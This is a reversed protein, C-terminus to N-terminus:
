ADEEIEGLFETRLSAADYENERLWTVLPGSNGHTALVRNAGTQSIAYLLGPWDSHDSLVFGRDVSRRRRRGRIRMWGSAFATSANGFRRSWVSSMASPPAIILAGSWDRKSKRQSDTDGTYETTPLEIGTARYAANQREVAGHCYIPGITPDVGAIVRQAKGLAYAFLLSARGEDHNQRWWENIQTFIESEDPWRYIPLGFTSETVFVDCPIPEFPTCTSGAVVNYDGSVVWTEGRHEVRVQASGLVHGAPHLSVAVDGFYRTEGYALTDITAGEGMRTRLVHQGDMATVYCDNGRRAHDAHAHTIIAQKVPRWPDM